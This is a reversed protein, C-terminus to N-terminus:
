SYGRLLVAADSMPKNWIWKIHMSMQFPFLNIELDGLTVTVLGKALITQWFSYSTLYKVVSMIFLDIKTILKTLEDQDLFVSIM